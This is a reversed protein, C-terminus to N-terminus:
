RNIELTSVSAFAKKPLQIEVKGGKQAVKLREMSVLSPHMVLQPSVSTALSKM